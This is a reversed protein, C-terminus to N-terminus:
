RVDVKNQGMKVVRWIVGESIFDYQELLFCPCYGPLPSVVYVPREKFIKGIV